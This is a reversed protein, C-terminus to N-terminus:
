KQGGRKEEPLDIVRVLYQVNDIELWNMLRILYHGDPTTDGSEWKQYTRVSTGIAEAVEAQTMNCDKRAQRLAEHDFEMTQPGAYIQEWDPETGEEPEDELIYVITRPGLEIRLEGCQSKESKFTLSLPNKVKVATWELIPNGKKDCPFHGKCTFTRNELGYVGGYSKIPHYIVPEQGIKILAENYATIFRVPMLDTWGHELCLHLYHRWYQFLTKGGLGGEEFMSPPVDIEFMRKPGDKKPPSPPAVQDRAYDFIIELPFHLDYFMWELDAYFGEYDYQPDEDDSRVPIVLSLGSRGGTESPMQYFYFPIRRLFTERDISTFMPADKLYMCFGHEGFRRKERACYDFVDSTVTKHKELYSVLKEADIQNRDVYRNIVSIQEATLKM